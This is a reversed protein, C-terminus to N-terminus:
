NDYVSIQRVEEIKPFASCENTGDIDVHKGAMMAAMLSAFIQRDLATRLPLVYSWNLDTHCGFSVPPSYIRIFLVDGCTKDLNLSSVRDGYLARAQTPANAGALILLACCVAHTFRSPQM